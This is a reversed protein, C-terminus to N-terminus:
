RVHDAPSRELRTGRPAATLELTGAARLRHLSRVLALETVPSERQLDALLEWGTACRAAALWIPRDADAPACDAVAVPRLDLLSRYEPQKVVVVDELVCVDIGTALMCWLADEPTEVIPEGAINFSTNLLIPVGTAALFRELLAHLPGNADATVTQLRGTGDVHVVAPVRAAQGRRFPRVRLMFPSEDPTGDPEFWDAVHALLCAPAFPRFAERHKVRANLRDKVDPGRPDCLISRQGLARPGLESGGQFWGVVQGDCLRRVTEDLVDVPRVVELAPLSAVAHDVGPRDYRRGFSDRRLRRRPARAGLAELGCFAAGVAVGSDECAPFLHIDAFGSDRCLRQNAVSNLAVGGSFCLRDKGSVARLRIAIALLAEELARQTSAALDRYASQLAPWRLPFPFQAPVDDAFQLRQGVTRYFRETPITPTGYPALGMVKGAEMADGFIQTAVASYMGGLGGFRPMGPGERILWDGNQVVHKELAAIAPGDAAYLSMTEWGNEVPDVCARQEDVSFDVAPSGLGDVVLLAADTFGSTAYASVAHALHHSVGHVPIGRSEPDLWEHRRVDHQPSQRRGQVAIAIMSLDGPRIRAYDLCYRVALSPAAGFVRDRKRRTLREEQIAVVIESGRLVCAAGNHSASIGLVWPATATM